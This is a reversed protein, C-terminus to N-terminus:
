VTIIAVKECGLFWLIFMTTVTDCGHEMSLVFINWIYVVM